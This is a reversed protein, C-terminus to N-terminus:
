QYLNINVTVSQKHVLHFKRLTIMWNNYHQIFHYHDSNLMVTTKIETYVAVSYFLSFHKLGCSLTDLLCIMSLEM